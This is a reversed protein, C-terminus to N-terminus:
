FHDDERIPRARAAPKADWASIQWNDARHQRPLWPPLDLVLFDALATVYPEYLRRLEGLRHAAGAPDRLRLGAADLHRALREFEAQPLRDFGPQRPPTSFVQALDVVAHRAIAFTLEAQRQCACEIGVMVVASADLVTALAAVWSQNSHQSRFYALLPYSLHSELLEASWREWEHLLERLAVLGGEYGHRRLLEGASPPSGARADLLSVAVERRSFAQYIVPAYGIVLALFGFGTGAEIVTFLKAWPTATGLSSLGLTFFTSGSFYLDEIVGPRAAWRPNIAWQVLAFGGVLGAAWFALLFLLSLPGYFGLYTERRRSPLWRAIRRWPLWTSRFFLRTLRFPRTVRRPLVVTEFADWLVAGIIVLGAVLVFINM